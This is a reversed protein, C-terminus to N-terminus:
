KRNLFQDVQTVDPVIHMVGLERAETENLHGTLVVVIEVGAARCM